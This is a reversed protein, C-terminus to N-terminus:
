WFIYPESNSNIKTRSLTKNGDSYLVTYVYNDKVGWERFYHYEPEIKYAKTSNAFDIYTVKNEIDTYDGDLKVRYINAPYIYSAEEEYAKTYYLFSGDIYFDQVGTIFEDTKKMKTNYRCLEYGTDLIYYIYEHYVDIQRASVSNYGTIFKTIPDRLTIYGLDIIVSFNKMDSDCKYITGSVPMMTPLVFVTETPNSGYIYGGYFCSLKLIQEKNRADESYIICANESELDIKVVSLDMMETSSEAEKQLYEDYGASVWAYICGGDIMMNRVYVDDDGMEFEILKDMKNSNINYRVIYSKLIKMTEKYTSWYQRVSYLVGDSYCGGAAFNPMHGCKGDINNRCDEYVCLREAEDNIDLRMVSNKKGDYYIVSGDDNCYIINGGVLIECGTYDGSDSYIDGGYKKIAPNMADCYELYTDFDDPNVDIFIEKNSIFYNLSVALVGLAILPIVIKKASPMSYRISKTVKHIKDKIIDSYVKREINTRSYLTMSYIHNNLAIYDTNYRIKLLLVYIVLTLDFAMFFSMIFILILLNINGDSLIGLIFLLPYMIIQPVLYIIIIQRTKFAERFVTIPIETNSYLKAETNQGPDSRFLATLIEKAIFYIVPIMIFMINIISNNLDIYLLSINLIDEIGGTFIVLYILIVPVIFFLSFVAWLFNIIRKKPEIVEFHYGNELLNYRLM